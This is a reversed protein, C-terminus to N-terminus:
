GIISKFANGANVLMLLKGLWSWFRGKDPTTGTDSINIRQTHM